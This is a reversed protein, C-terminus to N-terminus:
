YTEGPACVSVSLLGPRRPLEIRGPLLRLPLGPAAPAGLACLRRVRGVQDPRPLRLPLQPQLRLVRVRLRAAPRGALATRRRRGCHRLGQGAAGRRGARGDGAGEMWRGLGQM